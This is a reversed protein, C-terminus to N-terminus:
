VFCVGGDCPVDDLTLQKAGEDEPIRVAEALPKRHPHIFLDFDRRKDRVIEDVAVAEDWDPGGAEKMAKWHSISHFPCFTCASKPPVDIGHSEELYTVCDFRTIRRDVLPYVNEIYKVDSSRMRTFEDLSIGQWCEVAGPTMKNNLAERLYRRIPM